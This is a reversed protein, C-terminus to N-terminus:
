MYYWVAIKFMILLVNYSSMQFSISKDLVHCILQWVYTYSALLLLVIKQPGFIYEFFNSFTIQVLSTIKKAFPQFRFAHASVM